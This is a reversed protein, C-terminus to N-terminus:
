TGFRKQRSSSRMGCESWIRALFAPSTLWRAQSALSKSTLRKGTEGGALAAEGHRAIL